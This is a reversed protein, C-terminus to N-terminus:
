QEQFRRLVPKMHWYSWGCQTSILSLGLAMTFRLDRLGERTEKASMRTQTLGGKSPAGFQNKIPGRAKGWVM